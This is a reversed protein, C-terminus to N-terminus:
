YIEGRKVPVHSNVPQFDKIKITLKDVIEKKDESWPFPETRETKSVSVVQIFDSVDRVVKKQEPDYIYTEPKKGM